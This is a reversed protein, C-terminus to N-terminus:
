QNVVVDFMASLDPRSAVHYTIVIKMCHEPIADDDYSFLINLKDFIIYPMWKNTQSIIRDAIKEKISGETEQGFFFEILNCGFDYHMVREGWNTLVLSKINQQVAAIEDNTTEFYGLSGTSKAFPMTFGISM